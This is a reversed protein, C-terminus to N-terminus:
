AGPRTGQPCLRSWCRPGRVGDDHIGADVSDLRACRANLRAGDLAPTENGHSAIRLHSREDALAGLHEIGLLHRHHWSEDVAVVVCDTHLHEVLGGYAVGELNLEDGDGPNDVLQAHLRAGRRGSVPNLAIEEVVSFDFVPARQIYVVEIPDRAIQGNDDVVPTAVGAEVVALGQLQCSDGTVCRIGRAARELAVNVAIEGPSDGVLRRCHKLAHPKTGSVRVFLPSLSLTRRHCVDRLLKGATPKRAHVVLVEAAGLFQAGDLRYACCSVELMADVERHCSSHQVLEDFRTNLCAEAILPQADAARNLMQDIARKGLARHGQADRIGAHIGSVAAVDGFGLVREIVPDQAHDLGTNLDVTVGVPVHRDRGDQGPEVM